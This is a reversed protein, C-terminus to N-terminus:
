TDCSPKKEQYRSAQNEQAAEFPNEPEPRLGGQDPTRPRERAPPLSIDGHVPSV